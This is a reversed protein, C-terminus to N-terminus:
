RSSSWTVLEEIDQMIPLKNAKAFEEINMSGTDILTMAYKCVDNKAGTSFQRAIASEATKQVSAYYSGEIARREEPDEIEALRADMYKVAAGYYKMNDKQWKAQFELPTETRGIETLCDRGLRGVIFNQTAVFAASSDRSKSAVGGGTTQALAASSGIVFMCVISLYRKM